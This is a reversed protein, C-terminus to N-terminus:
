LRFGNDKNSEVIHLEKKARTAGVYFTRIESDQDSSEACARSSELMLLVNDAEGGKAKHITSVKIRPSGNWIKEGSKRVSNIYTLEKDSVKVVQNWHTEASVNLCDGMYEISYLKEPDLSTLVKKGHKTFVHPQTIKSFSKWESISLDQNKCIKNWVEIGNLVNPSISWGSGEKWFLYGSEKLQNAVKNVIYNTRALILWEGTRLDVDMMDYHWVVSGKKTTPQWVKPQRNSLRGVLNEVIGHVHLPIRYSQDLIIKNSSANLFDKVDVGMWSYICQDDDGAYFTKKAKPVLVKKVMEWQMPVLDQAEDVILLDLIPGEGQDIFDQIMDVFDRKKMAKKYDHLVKEVLKAQQFNIRRDNTDSFQQELSVGRVRAMNILGLYADGGKGSTFLNGESMNVSSNSSFELGLLDGLQNYDSGKFVDKTSLGLWQFALSHLTRFWVMQEANMGLKETARTRAEEAAKKSFSVFAIKDPPTGNKIEEQVISILKTTKGTGPPGFITTEM